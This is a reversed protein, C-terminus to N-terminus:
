WYKFCFQYPFVELAGNLYITYITYGAFIFLTMLCVIYRWQKQSEAKIIMPIFIPQMITFTRILRMWFEENKFFISCVSFFAAMMQMITFLRYKKNDRYYFLSIVLLTINLLIYLISFGGNEVDLFYSYKTLSLLQKFAMVFLYSPLILIISIIIIQERSIKIKSFLYFPLIIITSNHILFAIMFLCLVKLINEKKLGVIAYLVIALAMYQRVNNLSSFFISSFLFVVVSLAPNNSKELMVYYSFITIVLSSIIFIFQYHLDLAAGLNNLLQFLPESAYPKYGYNVVDLYFPVYTHFYDTGVDYRFASIFFVPFCSLLFLLCKKIYKTSKCVAYMQAFIASILFSIIYVM